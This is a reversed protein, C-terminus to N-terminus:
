RPASVRRRPAPPVQKAAIVLARPVRDSGRRTMVTVSEADSTAITGLADTMSEGHPSSGRDIRYRLVVRKGPVLFPAWGPRPRAADADDVM